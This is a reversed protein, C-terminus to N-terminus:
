ILKSRSSNDILKIEFQRPQPVGELKYKGDRTEIHVKGIGFIKEIMNQSVRANMIEGMHIRKINKGHKIHVRQPLLYYTKKSYEFTLTGFLFLLTLGAVGAFIKELLAFYQVNVSSLMEFTGFLFMIGVLVALAGKEVFWVAIVGKHPKFRTYM